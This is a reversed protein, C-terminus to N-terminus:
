SKSRQPSAEHCPGKGTESGRPLFDAVYVAIGTVRNITLAVHGNTVQGFFMIGVGSSNANGTYIEADIQKDSYTKTRVFLVVGAPLNGGEGVLQAHSDDLYFRLVRDISSIGGKAANNINASFECAVHKGAACAPAVGALLVLAGIRLSTVFNRMALSYRSFRAVTAAECITAARAFDRALYTETTPILKAVSV